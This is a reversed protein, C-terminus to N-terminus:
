GSRLQALHGTRRHWLGQSFGGAFCTKGAGLNGVLAVVEGGRMCAGISRALRQTEEASKSLYLGQIEAPPLEDGPPIEHILAGTEVCSNRTEERLQELYQRLPIGTRPDCLDPQIDLLPILAFAREHLRAHPIILRPQDIVADGYLAIDIDITRPGWHKEEERRRGLNREIEHIRDLLADPLLSTKLEIAANLFSPQDIKGWPPTEYVHSARTLDVRHTAGLLFAAQRLLNMRDGLNSGLLCLVTTQPKM